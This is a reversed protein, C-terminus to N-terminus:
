SHQMCARSGADAPQEHRACHVVVIHSVIFRICSRNYEILRSIAIQVQVQVAGQKAVRVPGSYGLELRTSSEIACCCQSLKAAVKPNINSARTPTQLPCAAQSLPSAVAHSRAEVDGARTQTGLMLWREGPLVAMAPLSPARGCAEPWARPEWRQLLKLPACNCGGLGHPLRDACRQRGACATAAGGDGTSSM